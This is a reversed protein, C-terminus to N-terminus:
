SGVALGALLALVFVVALVATVLHVWAVVRAATVLGSGSRWGGSEAISREAAGALVLAVVALVVPILIWSGIACVLAWVATPETRAGAVPSSGM